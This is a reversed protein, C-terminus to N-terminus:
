QHYYSEVRRQPRQASKKMYARIFMLGTEHDDVLHHQLIERSERGREHPLNIEKKETESSLHQQTKNVEHTEQLTRLVTTRDLSQTQGSLSTIM